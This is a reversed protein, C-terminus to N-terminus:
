IIELESIIDEVRIRHGYWPQNAFGPAYTAKYTIQGKKDIIITGVAYKGSRNWVGFAEAVKSNPKPILTFTIGYHNKMESVDQQDGMSSIAIVEADLQKIRDIRSQVDNLHDMCNNYGGWTLAKFLTYFILVVKKEGRFDSLRVENGSVDVLTFDPALDGVEPSPGTTACGALLTIVLLIPSLKSM